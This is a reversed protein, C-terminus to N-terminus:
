PNGNYNDPLGGFNRGATSNDYGRYGRFERADGAPVQIGQPPPTVYIANQPNKPDRYYVRGNKSLYYQVNTPKNAADKHRKYMYYLAAAGVLLVVKKKTSMHSFPNQAQAPPAICLPLLCVPAAMTAAVLMAKARMTFPNSTYQLQM